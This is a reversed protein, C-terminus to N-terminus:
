AAEELAEEIRATVGPEMGAHQYREEVVDLCARVPNLVQLRSVIAADTGEAVPVAIGIDSEDIGRHERDNLPQVLRFQRREVLPM